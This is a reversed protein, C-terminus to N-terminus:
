KVGSERGAIKTLVLMFLPYFEHIKFSQRSFQMYRGGQNRPIKFRLRM